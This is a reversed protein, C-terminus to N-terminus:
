GWSWTSCKRSQFHGVNAESLSWCFYWRAPTIIAAHICGRFITVPHCRLTSLTVAWQLVSGFETHLQTPSGEPKWCWYVSESAPSSNPFPFSFCSPSVSIQPMHHFSSSAHTAAAACLSVAWWDDNPVGSRSSIPSLSGTSLEMSWAVSASLLHIFTHWHTCSWPWLSSHCSICVCDCLVARLSQFLMHALCSPSSYNFMANTIFAPSCCSLCRWTALFTSLVFHSFHFIIHM